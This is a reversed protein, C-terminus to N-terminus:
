HELKFNLAAHLGYGRLPFGTLGILCRQFCISQPHTHGKLTQKKELSARSVDVVSSWVQHGFLISGLASIVGHPSPVRDSRHLDISCQVNKHSLIWVDRSPGESLAIRPVVCCEKILREIPFNSCNCSRTM